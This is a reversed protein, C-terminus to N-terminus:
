GQPGKIDLMPLGDPMREIGGGSGPAGGATGRDEAFTDALKAFMQALAPSEGLETSRLVQLAEPGGYQEVLKQASALKADYEDGWEKRLAERAKETRQEKARVAELYATTNMEFLQQAQEPTLGAELARQAFQTAAQEDIGEPVELKYDETSQPVVPVQGKLELYKEFLETASGMQQADEHEWYDQKLQKRWGLKPAEQSQETTAEATTTAQGETQGGEPVAIGTAPDAVTATAEQTEAM